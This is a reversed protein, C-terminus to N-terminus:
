IAIGASWASSYFAALKAEDQVFCTDGIRPTIFFWSAGNYVAVKGEHTAWAGTASAAVIYADGAAPGGPPAALDRDKVTFSRATHRSWVMNWAGASFLAQAQEDEIYAQWGTRPTAFVWAGAPTGPVWVAIQGARSAWDGTPSAAIIYTAGDAPSGPPDALSRSLVSLHFGFRGLRTLNADMGVNWNNEGFAWGYQLGSRTETKAPM